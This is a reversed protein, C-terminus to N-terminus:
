SQEKPAPPLPQWVEAFEVPIHVDNAIVWADFDCGMVRGFGAVQTTGYGRLLVRRGDKPAESIPKWGQQIVAGQEIAERLAKTVGIHEPLKSRDTPYSVSLANLAQQLLASM